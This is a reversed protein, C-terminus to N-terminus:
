KRRSVKQEQSRLYRVYGGILHADNTLACARLFPFDAEALEKPFL